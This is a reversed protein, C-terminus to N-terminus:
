CVLQGPIMIAQVVEVVLVVTLAMAEVLAVVVEMSVLAVVM